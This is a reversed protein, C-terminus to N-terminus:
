FYYTVDLSCRKVRPRRLVNLNRGYRHVSNINQVEEDGDDIRQISRQIKVHGQIVYM